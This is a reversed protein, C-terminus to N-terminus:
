ADRRIGELIMDLVSEIEQLKSLKLKLLELVELEASDSEFQDDYFQANRFRRAIDPSGARTWGIDFAWTAQELDTLNLWIDWTLGNPFQQAREPGISEHWQALTQNFAPRNIWQSLNNWPSQNVAREWNAKIVTLQSLPEGWKDLPIGLTDLADALVNRTNGAQVTARPTTWQLFGIGRHWTEINLSSPNDWAEVIIDARPMCRNWASAPPTVPIEDWPVGIPCTDNLMAERNFNPNAIHEALMPNFNSEVEVTGLIACAQLHPLELELRLFLYFNHANGTTLTYNRWGTGQWVEPVPNDWVLNRVRENIIRTM